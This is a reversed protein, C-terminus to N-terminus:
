SALEKLANEKETIYAQAEIIAAAAQDIMEQDREVRIVKSQLHVPLRPDYCMFDCWKRGTCELQWQIQWPYNAGLREIDGSLLFLIHNRTNPCKIELLGDDGILRDPSAGCMPIVPHDVFDSFALEAGTEFAYYNAAADEQDLGWQMPKSVFHETAQGTLRETLVEYVYDNWVSYPTGKQTRRAIDGVRSATIKGSRKKIWAPKDQPNLV